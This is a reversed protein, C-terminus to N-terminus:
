HYFVSIFSNNFLLLQLFKNKLGITQHFLDAIEDFLQTTMVSKANTLQFLVTIEDFLDAIEVSLHKTLHNLAASDDFLNMLM